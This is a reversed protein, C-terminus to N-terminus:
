PMIVYPSEDPVENTPNSDLTDMNFSAHHQDNESNGRDIKTGEVILSQYNADVPVRKFIDLQAYEAPEEYACNESDSVQPLEINRQIDGEYATNQINGIDPTNGKGPKRRYLFCGLIVMATVLVVVAAVVIGIIVGTNNDSSSPKSSGPYLL